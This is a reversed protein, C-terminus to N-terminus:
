DKKMFLLLLIMKFADLYLGNYVVKVYLFGFLKKTVDFHQAIEFAIQM